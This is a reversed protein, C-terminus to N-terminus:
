QYEGTWFASDEGVKSLTTVYNLFLSTSGMVRLHGTSARLLGIVYNGLNTRMRWPLTFRSRTISGNETSPLIKM